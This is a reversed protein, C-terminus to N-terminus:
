LIQQLLLLPKGTKQNQWPNQTHKNRPSVNVSDRSKGFQILFSIHIYLQFSARNSKWCGWHKPSEQCAGYDLHSFSFESIEPHSYEVHVSNRRLSLVRFNWLFRKLWLSVRNWPMHPDAVDMETTLPMQSLIPLIPNQWEPCTLKNRAGTGM